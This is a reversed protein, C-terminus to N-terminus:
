NFVAYYTHQLLTPVFSQLAADRWSSLKVGRTKAWQLAKETLPSIIFCNKSRETPFRHLQMELALSCQLLHGNREEAKGSYSAVNTM